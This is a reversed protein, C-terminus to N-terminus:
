NLPVRQNRRIPALKRSLRLPLWGSNFPKSDIRLVGPSMNEPASKPLLNAGAQLAFPNFRSATMFVL